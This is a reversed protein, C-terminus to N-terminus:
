VIVNPKVLSLVINNFPWGVKNIDYNNTPFFCINWTNTALIFSILFVFGSMNINLVNSHRHPFGFLFRKEGGFM